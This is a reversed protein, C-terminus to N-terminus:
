WALVSLCRLDRDISGAQSERESNEFRHSPTLQRLTHALGFPWIRILNERAHLAFFGGGRAAFQLNEEPHRRAHALGVGHQLGRLLLLRSPM